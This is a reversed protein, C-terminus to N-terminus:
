SFLVKLFAIRRYQVCLHICRKGVIWWYAKKDKEYLIRSDRVYIQFRTLARAFTTRQGGSFSHSCQCPVVLIKRQAAQMDRMFAHDLGDLFIREDYRYHRYVRLNVTMCSNFAQLKDPSASLCEAVSSFYRGGRTGIRSPSRIIGDQTLIPILIDADGNAKIYGQMDGLFDPQLVTDDDLLCIWGSQATKMLLSIVANYAKSLGQNGSGGLYQWGRLRCFAENGFDRESNDFVFIQLDDGTQALLSQCTSSDGCFRNYVVVAAYIM